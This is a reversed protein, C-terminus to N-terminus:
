EAGKGAAQMKAKWNNIVSVVRGAICDHVLIVRM